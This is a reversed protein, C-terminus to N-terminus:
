SFIAKYYDNESLKEKVNEGIRFVHYAPAGSSYTTYYIEEATWKDASQNQALSLIVTPEKGSLGAKYFNTTYTTWDMKTYIIYTDGEAPSYANKITRVITRKKCDFVVIETKGPGGTGYSSRFLM